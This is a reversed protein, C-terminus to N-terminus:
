RIFLLKSEQSKLAITLIKTNGRPYLTVASMEPASALPTMTSDIIKITESKTKRVFGKSSSVTTTSAKSVAIIDPLTIPPQEKVYATGITYKTPDQLSTVKFVLETFTENKGVVLTNGTFYSYGTESILEWKVSQDPNNRGDVTAKFIYTNGKYL